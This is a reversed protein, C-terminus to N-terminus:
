GLLMRVLLLGGGAATAGLLLLRYRAIRARPDPAKKDQFQLAEPLYSSERTAALLGADHLLERARKFDEPKLVWVAPQEGTDQQRAAASYSFSRRSVGKWSRGQTIKTAIGADNLMKEVGEVNELRHSTFVQRM